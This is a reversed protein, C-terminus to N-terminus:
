LARARAYWSAVAITRTCGVVTVTRIRRCSTALRSAPSPVSPPWPPRGACPMCRRACSGLCSSHTPALASESSLTPMQPLRLARLMCGFAEACAFCPRGGGRDRSTPPPACLHWLPASAPPFESALASAFTQAFFDDIVVHPVAGSAGFQAALSAPDQQAWPGLLSRVDPPDAALAAEPIQLQGETNPLSPGALPPPPPVLPPSSIRALLPDGGRPSRAEDASPM